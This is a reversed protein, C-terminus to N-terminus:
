HLTQFKFYCDFAPLAVTHKKTYNHTKISLRLWNVSRISVLWIRTAAKFMSLFVCVRLLM